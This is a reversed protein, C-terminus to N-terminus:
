NRTRRRSKRYEKPSMGLKKKFVRSFYSYDSFGCDEAVNSVPRDSTRLVEEARAIRVDNLYQVFTSNLNKSFLDCIYTQSIFFKSSIDALSIPSAYSSQIYELISNLRSSDTILRSKEPGPLAAKKDLHTRLRRLQAAFEEGSLPKLFYYFVGHAIAEKAYGFDDYGSIILFECDLGEERAKSILELGTMKPMSIDAVVVDPPSARLAAWAEEADSYEGAIAFGHDEWVTVTRLRALVWPEDDILVASYM